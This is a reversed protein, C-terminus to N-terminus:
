EIPEADHTEGDNTMDLPDIEQADRAQGRLALYHV